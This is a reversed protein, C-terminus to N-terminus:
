KADDTVLDVAFDCVHAPHSKLIPLDSSFDSDGSPYDEPVEDSECLTVAGVFRGDHALRGGKWDMVTGGYDWGFGSFVFPRGNLAELETSSMGARVGDARTWKSGTRVVLSAPHVGDDDPYIEIRSSPDNPYLVWGAVEEGEGGPLTERVIVNGYRARLTDFTDDARVLSELPAVEAVRSTPTSSAISAGPTSVTPRPAEVAPTSRAAAPAAVPADERRCASLSLVLVALALGRQM